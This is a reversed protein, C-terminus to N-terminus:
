RVYAVLTIYTVSRQLVYKQLTLLCVLLLIWRLAWTRVCPQAQIVDNGIHICDLNVKALQQSTGVILLETKDDKLRLHDNIMWQRIENICSRMANLAAEGDDQTDPNFALYLQTDRIAQQHLDHVFNSGSM